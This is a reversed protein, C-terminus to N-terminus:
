HVLVLALPTNILMRCVIMVLRIDIGVAYEM